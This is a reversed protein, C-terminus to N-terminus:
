ADQYDEELYYKVELIKKTSETVKYSESIRHGIIWIIQSGDALLPVKDREEKPIKCDIFYKKLKKDGDIGKVAIVDGSRRNRVKLNYKIKDYDFWKTYLNKPINYKEGERLSLEIYSNLEKIYTRSHLSVETEFAETKNEGLITMIISSYSRKAVIGNPLQIKKSVELHTLQIIQEIHKYEINKLSGLFRLVQRILRRQIVKDLTIFGELDISCEGSKKTVLEDMKQTAIGEIFDDESRALSATNVIANVFNKNFHDEIYPIVTHRIKNRTYEELANTYDDRYPIQHKHCYAEIEQRSCEILPRIIHDRIPRIGGIGRLGTGRMLNMVVTEAQDNKHHAIAIRGNHVKRRHKEFVDYRIKRGMEELSLKHKKALKGVDFYSVHCPIDMRKCISEVLEVDEEADPRIGHHVHVVYLTIGLEDKVEGLLHLLCMSDMGGSVGMIITDGERVMDWKRITTLVQEVMYKSM